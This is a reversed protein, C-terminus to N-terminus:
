ANVGQSVESLNRLSQPLLVSNCARIAILKSKHFVAQQKDVFICLDTKLLM